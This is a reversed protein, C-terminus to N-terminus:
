GSRPGEWMHPFEANTLGLPGSLGALAQTGCTVVRAALIERCFTPRALQSQPLNRALSALAQEPIHPEFDM